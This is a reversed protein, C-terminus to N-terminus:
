YILRIVVKVIWPNVFLELAIGVILFVSTLLLKQVSWRVEEREIVRIIVVAYAPLYAFFQPFIGALYFLVGFPGLNMLEVSMLLGCSFGTWLLFLWVVCKSIKTQQITIMFLLPLIRVCCLYIGYSGNVIKRELFQKLFYESFLDSRVIYSDAVFNAFLIGVLFGVLACIFIQKKVSDTKM